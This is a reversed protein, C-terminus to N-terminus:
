DSCLQLPPPLYRGVFPRLRENERRRSARGNLGALKQVAHQLFGPFLRFDLPEVVLHEPAGAGGVHGLEGVDLIHLRM